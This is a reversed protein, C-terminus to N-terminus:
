PQVTCPLLKCAVVQLKPFQAHYTRYDSTKHPTGPPPQYKYPTYTGWRRIARLCLCSISDQWKTKCWHGEKNSLFPILLPYCNSFQLSARMISLWIVPHLLGIIKSLLLKGRAEASHQRPNCLRMGCLRVLSAAAAQASASSLAPKVYSCSKPLLCECLCLRVPARLGGWRCVFLQTLNAPVNLKIHKVNPPLFHYTRPPTAAGRREEILARRPKMKCGQRLASAGDFSILVTAFPHLDHSEASQGASPDGLTLGGTHFSIFLWRYVVFWDIGKLVIWKRTPQVWLDSTLPRFFVALDAPKPARPCMRSIKLKDHKLSWYSLFILPM